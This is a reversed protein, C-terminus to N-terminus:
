VNDFFPVYIKLRYFDEATKNTSTVLEDLLKIQTTTLRKFDTDINLDQCWQEIKLFKIHFDNVVNERFRELLKQVDGALKLATVLDINETQLQCSLPMRVSFVKGIIHTTIIFEPQEIIVMLQKAKSSTDIDEWESIEDLAVLIAKYLEIFVLIADYREVWITPCM